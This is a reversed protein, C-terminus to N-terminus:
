EDYFSRAVVEQQTPPVNTISITQDVNTLLITQSAAVLEEPTLIGDELTTTVAGNSPPNPDGSARRIELLVNASNAPDRRVNSVVPPFPKGPTPPEEVVDPASSRTEESFTRAM